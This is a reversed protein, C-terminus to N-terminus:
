AAPEQLWAPPTARKFRKGAGTWYRRAQEELSTREFLIGRTGPRTMVLGERGWKLVTGISVGVHYAAAHVGMALQERYVKAREDEAAVRLMCMGLPTVAEGGLSNRLLGGWRFLGERILTRIWRSRM